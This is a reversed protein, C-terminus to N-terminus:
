ALEQLGSLARVVRIDRIKAPDAELPDGDLIVLDALFGEALVGLRGERFVGYAPAATFLRVAEFPSLKEEPYWGGPPNGALDARTVAAQIGLLPDCDEVPCDSSGQLRVGAAQLSKWAYLLHGDEINLKKGVKDHDTSVFSPQIDALVGLRAMRAALDRTALQVHVLRPRGAQVAQRPLRELAAVVQTLAADGIAHCMVQLRHRHCYELIQYLEGDEYNLLGCGDTGKYPRKLAATGAGLSGDLILKVTGFSFADDQQYGALLARLELLEELSGVQVQEFVRLPLAGRGRLRAYAELINKKSEFDSFAKMDDSQISTLGKAKMARTTELILEEIQGTALPPKHALVMDGIAGEYVLGNPRGAGDRGINNDGPHSSQTIGCHELLLSNMSAIHICVRKTFIYHRTSVADWDERQPMRKEGATFTEQNWGVGMVWEGAPVRNEAIHRRLTDQMEEVSRAASLDVCYKEAFGHAIMHVHGDHMGPLCSAGALNIRHADKLAALEGQSLNMGRIVGHEIYLNAAREGEARMTLINGNEIIYRGM